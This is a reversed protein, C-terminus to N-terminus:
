TAGEIDFFTMQGADAKKEKEQMTAYFERYQRTYEYSERFMNRCAVALKPEYQDIVSIESTINRNYPCGVCGTRKLGYKTYCDSHVIGFRKEYYEKDADVYWFLPRYSDCLKDQSYCTKYNSSRVGGESKRIGVVILDTGNEKIYNHSAKKKAYYCCQSSVPFTPPHAILFEKLWKNYNINFMTRCSYLNKRRNCWWGITGYMGPYEKVLEDYPRDEWKFGHRQLRRINESVMKSIFPQGYEKICSPIVKPPRIRQITIGYRQELYVLHDKTAQYEVGTDFWVYEVNKDGRVREILDLVIDSDSGGSISVVIKEHKALVSEAKVFSDFVTPNDVRPIM